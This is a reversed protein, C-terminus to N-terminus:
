YVPQVESCKAQWHVVSLAAQLSTSCWDTSCSHLVEVQVCVYAKDEWEM